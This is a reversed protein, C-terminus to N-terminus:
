LAEWSPIVSWKEREYIGCNAGFVELVSGQQLNFQQTVCRTGWANRRQLRKVVNKKASERRSMSKLSNLRGYLRLISNYNKKECNELEHSLSYLDNELGYKKHM